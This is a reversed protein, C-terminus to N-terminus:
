EELAELATLRHQESIIEADLRKLKRQHKAIDERDDDQTAEDLAERQEKREDELDALTQRSDDILSATTCHEEVASLARRLGAAHHSQGSANAQALQQELHKRKADCGIDSAVAQSTMPLTLILAVACRFITPRPFFHTDALM